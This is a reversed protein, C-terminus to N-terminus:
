SKLKINNITDNVSAFKYNFLTKVKFNILEARKPLLPNNRFGAVPDGLKFFRVLKHLLDEYTIIEDGAINFFDDTGKEIMIETLYAVDDAFVPQIQVDPLSIKEKKNIATAWEKLQDFSRNNGFYDSGLLFGLRMWIFPIHAAKAANESALM